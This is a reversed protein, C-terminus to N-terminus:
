LSRRDIALSNPYNFNSPLQVLAVDTLAGTTKSVRSIMKGRPTPRVSWLEGARDRDLGFLSVPTFVFGTADLSFDDPDWCALGIGGLWVLLEGDVFAIPDREFPGLVAVISAAGTDPDVDYVRATDSLAFTATMRLVQAEPDWTLGIRNSVLGSIGMGGVITPAGTATDITALQPESADLPAVVGFLRHGPGFALGSVPEGIPGVLKAAGTQLDLRALQVDEPLVSPAFVAYAAPATPKRVPQQAPVQAQAAASWGFGLLAAILFRRTPDTAKM